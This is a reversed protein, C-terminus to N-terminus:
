SVLLLGGGIDCLLWNMKGVEDVFVWYGLLCEVM